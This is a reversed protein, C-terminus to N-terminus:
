KTIQDMGYLQHSQRGETVETNYDHWQKRRDQLLVSRSLRWDVQVQHPGSFLLFNSRIFLVTCACVRSLARARACVCVRRGENFGYVYVSMFIQKNRKVIKYTKPQIDEIMVM